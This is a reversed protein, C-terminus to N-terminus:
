ALLGKLTRVAVAVRADDLERFPARVYGGPLGMKRMLAKITPVHGFGAIECIASVRRQLVAAASLNGAELAAFLASYQEPALHSPGSVAGDCGELYAASLLADGGVLVSFDVSIRRYARLRDVDGMSNKIGIISPFKKALEAVVSPKLDNGTNSPINYLYVPFSEPVSRLIQEYYGFLEDDSYRFYYPTVAAIGDAGIDAAHRALAVADSTPIAGVQVFVPVAGNARSVVAEAVQQREHITMFAAEGTTGLPYLAHVGGEVLYDTLQDLAAWDVQGDKNFPTVMPPVIGRLRKM